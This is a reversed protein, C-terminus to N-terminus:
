IPQVPGILSVNQAPWRCSFSGKKQSRSLFKVGMMTQPETGECRSRAISGGVFGSMCVDLFKGHNKHEDNLKFHRSLYPFVYIAFLFHLIGIFAHPKWPVKYLGCSESEEGLLGENM